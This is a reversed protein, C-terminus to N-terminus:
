HTEQGLPPLKSQKRLQMLRWVLDDHPTTRTTHAPLKQLFQERFKQFCAIRDVSTGSETFARVIEQDLISM